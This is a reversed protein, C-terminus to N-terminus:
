DAVIWLHGADDDMPVAILSKRPICVSVYQLIAESFFSGDCRDTIWCLPRYANMWTARPIQAASAYEAFSTAAMRCAPGFSAIYLVPLAVMAALTWKAWRERRDILRVTLWVVAAAFAAGLIPLVIRIGPM